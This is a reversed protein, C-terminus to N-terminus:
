LYYEHLLTCMPVSTPAWIHILEPIRFFNIGLPLPLIGIMAEDVLLLWLICHAHQKEASFAQKEISDSSLSDLFLIIYNNNHICGSSYLVM